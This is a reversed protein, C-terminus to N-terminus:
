IQHRCLDFSFKAKANTKAEYLHVMILMLLLQWSLHIKTALCSSLFFEVVLNAEKELRARFERQEM